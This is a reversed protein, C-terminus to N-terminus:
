SDCDRDARFCRAIDAMSITVGISPRQQM